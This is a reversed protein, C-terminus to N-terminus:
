NQTQNFVILTPLIMLSYFSIIERASVGNCSAKKVCFINLSLRLEFKVEVRDTLWTCRFESKLQMTM